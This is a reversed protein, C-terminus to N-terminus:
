SVRRSTVKMLHSEKFDVRQSDCVREACMRIQVDTPGPVVTQLMDGKTPEMFGPPDETDVARHKEKSM